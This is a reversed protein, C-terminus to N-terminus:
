KSAGIITCAATWATILIIVSLSVIDKGVGVSIFIPFDFKVLMFTGILWSVLFLVFKYM